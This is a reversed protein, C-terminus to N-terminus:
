PETTQTPIWDIWLSPRRVRLEHVAVGRLQTDHANVYQLRPMAELQELGSNTISTSSIDLTRLNPLAQLRELGADTIATGSIDLTRLHTLFALEALDDDTVTTRALSVHTVRVLDEYLLNAMLRRHWPLENTGASNACVSQGGLRHVEAVARREGLARISRVGAVAFVIAILGVSVLITRTSFRTYRRANSM